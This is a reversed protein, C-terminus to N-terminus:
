QWVHASIAFGFKIGGGVGNDCVSVPLDYWRWCGECSYVSQLVVRLVVM